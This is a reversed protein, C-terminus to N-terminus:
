ARLDFTSQSSAAGTSITCRTLKSPRSRPGRVVEHSCQMSEIRVNTRVDVTACGRTDRAFGCKSVVNEATLLVNRKWQTTTDGSPHTPKISGKANNTRFLVFICSFLDIGSNASPIVCAQALGFCLPPGFTSLRVQCCSCVNFLDYSTNEVARSPIMVVSSFTVRANTITNRDCFFQELVSPTTISSITITM